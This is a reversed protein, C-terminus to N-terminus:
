VSSLSKTWQYYKWFWSDDDPIKNYLHQYEYMRGQASFWKEAGTRHVFNLRQSGFVSERPARSLEPTWTDSAPM